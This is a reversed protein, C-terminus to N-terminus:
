DDRSRVAFLAIGREEFFTLVSLIGGVISVCRQWYAFDDMDVDGDNDADAWIENCDSGFQLGDAHGGPYDLSTNLVEWMVTMVGSAPAMAIVSAEIWASANGNLYVDTSELVTGDHDGDILSIVCDALGTFYGSFKYPQGPTVKITQWARM